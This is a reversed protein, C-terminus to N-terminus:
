APAEMFDQVQGPARREELGQAELGRPAFAEQVLEHHVALGARQVQAAVLGGHHAYRCAVFRVFRVSDVCLVFRVCLVCLSQGRRQAGCTSSMRAVFGQEEKTGGRERRIEANEANFPVPRRILLTFFTTRAYEPPSSVEIMM